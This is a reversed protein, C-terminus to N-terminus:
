SPLLLQMLFLSPKKLIKGHKFSLPLSVQKIQTVVQISFYKWKTLYFYVTILHPKILWIKLFVVINNIHRTM